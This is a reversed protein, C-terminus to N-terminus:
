SINTSNRGVLCFLNYFKSVGTHTREMTHFVSYGITEVNHQQLNKTLFSKDFGHHVELKEPYRHFDGDEKELDGIILLGDPNLMGAFRELALPITNLHHLTMLSFIVDYNKDYKEKDIDMYVPSFHQTKNNNIKEQVEALMGESSDALEVRNFLDRLLFSVNGTGCGYELAKNFSMGQVIKRVEDAFKTAMEVRHPKTDWEFAIEDFRNKM